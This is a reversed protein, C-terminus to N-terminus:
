FAVSPLQQPWVLVPPTSFDSRWCLQFCNVLLLQAHIHIQTSHCCLHTIHVHLYCASGTDPARFNSTLLLLAKSQMEPASARGVSQGNEEPACSSPFSLVLFDSLPSPAAALLFPWFCHPPDAPYAPSSSSHDHERQSHTDRQLLRFPTSLHRWLLLTVATVRASVAARGHPHEHLEEEKSGVQYVPDAPAGAVRM